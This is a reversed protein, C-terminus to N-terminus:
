YGSYEGNVNKRRLLRMETGPLICSNRIQIEADSTLVISILIQIKFEYV